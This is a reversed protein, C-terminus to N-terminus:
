ICLRVLEFRDCVPLRYKELTVVFVSYKVLVFLSIISVFVVVFVDADM